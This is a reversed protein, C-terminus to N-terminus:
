TGDPGVTCLVNDILRITGLRVALLVVVEPTTQPDILTLERLTRACAVTAYDIVGEAGFTILQRLAHHITEVRRVGQHLIMEEAMCLAEYLVKAQRRQSSTLYRNRSSMALGDPERVIPRVVLEIPLNLDLIMKRILSAQQFDKQGFFAIDAGSILFLKLVVTAVGRFHGPRAAGEFRLSVTGVDVWTDYGDPYMDEAAPVFLLLEHGDPKELAALLARDEFLTRPYRSFDENPGFQSPNVFLSVVTAEARAFSARVLSLHGEHLAGMTPVLGVRKGEDHLLRVREHLERPDHIITPM